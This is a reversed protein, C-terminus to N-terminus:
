DEWDDGEDDYEDYRGESEYLIEGTDLNKLLIIYDDGDGWWNSSAHEEMGKVSDPFEEFFATQYNDDDIGWGGIYSALESVDKIGQHVAMSFYAM